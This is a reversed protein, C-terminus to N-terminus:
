KVEEWNEKVYEIVEITKDIYGLKEYLGFESMYFEYYIQFFGRFNNLIEIIKDLEQKSYYSEEKNNNEENHKIFDGCKISYKGVCCKCCFNSCPYTSYDGIERNCDECNGM